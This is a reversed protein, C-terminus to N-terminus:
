NKRPIRAKVEDSLEKLVVAHHHDVENCRANVHDLSFRRAAADSSLSQYYDRALAANRRFTDIDSLAESIVAYLIGTQRYQESLETESTARGQPATLSVLAYHVSCFAFDYAAASRPACAVGHEPLYPLSITCQGPLGSAPPFVLQSQGATTWSVLLLALMGPIRM